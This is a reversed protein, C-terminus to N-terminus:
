LGVLFGGNETMRLGGINIIEGLDNLKMREDPLDKSINCLILTTELEEQEVPTYNHERSYRAAFGKLRLEQEKPKLKKWSIKQETIFRMPAEEEQNDSDDDFSITINARIFEKVLKSTLIPNNYIDVSRDSKRFKYTLSGIRMEPDTSDKSYNIDVVINMKPPSKGTAMESFIKKWQPNTEEQSIREFIPFKIEYRVIGKSASTKTSRKSGSILDGIPPSTGIFTSETSYLVDGKHSEITISGPEM